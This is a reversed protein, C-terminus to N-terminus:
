CEFVELQKKRYAFAIVDSKTIHHESIEKVLDLNETFYKRKEDESILWENIVSDDLRAKESSELDIYRVLRLINFLKEIEPSNFTFSIKHPKGGKKTFRQITIYKIKRSDEYFTIKVEQRGAPTVRLVVEKKIEAFQYAGENDFVKSLIRLYRPEALELFDSSKFAKSIYTRDNRKCNFYDYEDPPGSPNDVM